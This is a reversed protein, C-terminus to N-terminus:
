DGMSSILTNWKLIEMRFEDKPLYSGVFEKIEDSREPFYKTFLGIIEERFQLPLRDQAHLKVKREAYSTEGGTRISDDLRRSRERYTDLLDTFERRFGRGESPTGKTRSMRFAKWPLLGKIM